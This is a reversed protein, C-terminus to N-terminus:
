LISHVDCKVKEVFKMNALCKACLIVSGIIPATFGALDSDVSDESSVSCDSEVSSEDDSESNEQKQETEREKKIKTEGM